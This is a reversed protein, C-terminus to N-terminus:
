RLPSPPKTWGYLGLEHLSFGDRAARSFADAIGPIARVTGRHSEVPEIAHDPIPVIEAARHVAEVLRTHQRAMELRGGPQDGVNEGLCRRAFHELMEVRHPRSPKIPEPEADAPQWISEDQLRVANGREMEIDIRPGINDAAAHTFYIGMEVGTDTRGRVVVTDFSEIDAARYLEVEGSALRAAEPIQEGAIFLGAHAYHSLANNLPSDYVPRGDVTLRGAWNNRQFYAEGRPWCAHMTIRRLKGLRQDLIRRKLALLSPDYVDQFGVLLVKGSADRQQMMSEVEAVSGAAPKECLVHLGADLCCRTLPEHLHIPALVWAADLEAEGLMAELDAFVKVGRRQLESVRDHGAVAEPGAAAVLEVMPSVSSGNELVTDSMAQAYGVIGVCGLRLSHHAVDPLHNATMKRGLIEDWTPAM